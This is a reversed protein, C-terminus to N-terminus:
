AQLLSLFRPVASLAWSHPSAQLRPGCDGLGRGVYPMIRPQPVLHLPSYLKQFHACVSLSLSLARGDLILRCVAIGLSLVVKLSGDWSITLLIGTFLFISSSSFSKLYVCKPSNESPRTPQPEQTRVATARTAATHRLNLGQGLFERISGTHCFPFFFYGGGFFGFFGLSGSIFTTGRM